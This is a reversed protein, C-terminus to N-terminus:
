LALPDPRQLVSRQGDSLPPIAAAVAPQPEPIPPLAEYRVWGVGLAKYFLVFQIAGAEQAVVSQQEREFQQRQADLVNLVDTLGRDYRELALFAADMSSIVTSSKSLSKATL